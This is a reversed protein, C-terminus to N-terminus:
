ISELNSCFIPGIDSYVGLMNALVTVVPFSFLWVVVDYFINRAVREMVLKTTPSQALQDMWQLDNDMILTAVPLPPDIAGDPKLSRAKDLINLVRATAIEVSDLERAIM